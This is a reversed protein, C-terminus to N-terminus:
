TRPIVTDLFANLVDAVEKAVGRPQPLSTPLPRKSPRISGVDDPSQVFTLKGQRQLLEDLYPPKGTFISYTPVGLLAAERNMTGGGSIVIDSHWILQLGDVPRDLVHIRGNRKNIDGMLESEARTRNTVVIHVNPFSSFHVLAARFLAESKEDHYNGTVSPPRITVLVSTEDVGILKRFGPSPTFGELYIQEKFGNYRIIKRLNFGAERLREKPIMAPMLLKSTCLNFIAHETYEYDLMVISPMGRLWSALVQSRSGHSVSLQIPYNRVVKSLARTRGLVNAIKRLTNKGGHAGVEIHPIGWMRLLDLTQAHDRATVVYRVGRRDMEAFIPRFLPVHPSNDLDFWIM